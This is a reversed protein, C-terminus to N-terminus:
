MFYCSPSNGKFSIMGKTGFLIGGFFYHMRFGSVLTCSKLSGFPGSM